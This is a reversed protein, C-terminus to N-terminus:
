AHSAPPAGAIELVLKRRLAGAFAPFGLAPMVFSGMGGVVLDRYHKVLPEEAAEDGALPARGPTARLIPLGNIVIGEELALDRETEVSGGQNNEGDGSIDVVRRESAFPAVGLLRRSAALAGSISTWTGSRQPASQLAGAFGAADRANGVPMWPVLVRQDEFGSWEFYLVGISGSPGNGIAGLVEPAQMAAAYGERQLRLEAATMSQSVDAALVLLLDVEEGHSTSARALNPALLLAGSAALLSRRRM